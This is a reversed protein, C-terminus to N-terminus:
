PRDMPRSPAIGRFRAPWGYAHLFLFATGFLPVFILSSLLHYLTFPVQGKLMLDWTIGLPRTIFYWEGSATWLDYAITLPVSITTLLAVSSVRFMIRPRVRRGLIGVFVYGSVIFFSLGIMAQLGYGGYTTWDLSQLVALAAVPVLITWWRGLLSGALLAAVFVTEFNAFARLVVTGLVAVVILFVGLIRTRADGLGAVAARRLRGAL